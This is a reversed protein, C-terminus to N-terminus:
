SGSGRIITVGGPTTEVAPPKYVAPPPAAPDAPAETKATGEENSQTVPSTPPVAPVETSGNTKAKPKSSPPVASNKPADDALIVPPPVGTGDPSSPVWLRGDFSGPVASYANPSMLTGAILIALVRKRM